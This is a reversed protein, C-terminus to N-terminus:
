RYQHDCRVEGRKLTGLYQEVQYPKEVSLVERLKEALSEQSFPKQLFAFGEALIATYAVEKGTYGSMLLCKLHPRRRCLNKALERGDLGPMIVDSLLLDFEVNEAASLQLAEIPGGASLVQYGLEELTQQTIELLAPEDEVLLITQGPVAKPIESIRPNAHELSMEHRPLYIKFVTGKDPESDVEIFGQNQKVIGYVTALGLGTGQGIEKTTFFPEFIKNLTEKSM